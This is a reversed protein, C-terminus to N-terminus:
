DCIRRPLSSPPRKKIVIMGFGCDPHLWYKVHVMVCEQSSPPTIIMILAGLHWFHQFVCMGESLGLALMNGPQHQSVTQKGLYRKDNTTQLIKCWPVKPLPIYSRNVGKCAYASDRLISHLGLQLPLPACPLHQEKNEV